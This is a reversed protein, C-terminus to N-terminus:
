TESPAATSVKVAAPKMAKLAMAGLAMLAVPAIALLWVLVVLALQLVSIAVVLFKSEPREQASFAHPVLM